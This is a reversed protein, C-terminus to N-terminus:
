MSYMMLNFVMFTSFSTAVLIIRDRNCFAIIRAWFSGKDKPTDESELWLILSSAYIFPYIKFHV